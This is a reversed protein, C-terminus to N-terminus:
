TFILYLSFLILPIMAGRCILRITKLKVILESLELEISYLYRKLILFELVTLEEKVLIENIYYLDGEQKEMEDCDKGEKVKCTKKEKDFEYQRM